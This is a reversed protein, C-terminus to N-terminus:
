EIERKREIEREEKKREKRRGRNKQANLLQNQRLHTIYSLLIYSLNSEIQCTKPFQSTQTLTNPQKVIYTSTYSHFFFHKSIPTLLLPWSCACMCVSLSPSLSSSPFTLSFYWMIFHKWRSREYELSHIIYMIFAQPLGLWYVVSPFVALSSVFVVFCLLLALCCYCSSSIVCLIYEFLM